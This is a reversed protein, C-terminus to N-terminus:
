GIMNEDKTYEKPSFNLKFGTKSWQDYMDVLLKDHKSFTNIKQPKIYNNEFSSFDTKCHRCPSHHPRWRSQPRPDMVSQLCLFFDMQFSANVPCKVFQLTQDPFSLIECNPKHLYHASSCCTTLPVPVSLLKVIRTGNNIDSIM